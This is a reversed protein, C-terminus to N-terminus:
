QISSIEHSGKDNSCWPMKETIVHTSQDPTNFWFMIMNEEITFCDSLKDHSKVPYVGKYMEYAKRIMINKLENM